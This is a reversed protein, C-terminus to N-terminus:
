EALHGNERTFIRDTSISNRSTSELVSDEGILLIRQTVGHVSLRHMGEPTSSRPKVPVM